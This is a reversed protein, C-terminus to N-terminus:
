GQDDEPHLAATCMAACEDALQTACEGLAARAAGDDSLTAAQILWKMRDHDHRRIGDAIGSIDGQALMLAVSAADRQWPDAASRSYRLIDDGAEAVGARALIWMASIPVMYDDSRLMTRLRRLHPRIAEPGYKALQALAEDRVEPSRDKAGRQLLTVADRQPLVRTAAWMAWSRAQPDPDTALSHLQEARDQSSELEKILEAIDADARGHLTEVLARLTPNMDVSAIQVRNISTQTESM